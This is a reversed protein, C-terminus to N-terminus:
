KLLRRFFYFGSRKKERLVEKCKNSIALPTPFVKDIFRPHSPLPVNKRGLRHVNCEPIVELIRMSIEATVGGREMEEEVVLVNMTSKASRVITEMDLPLLTQLSIIEVGMGEKRLMVAAKQASFTLAGWVVITIDSGKGFVISSGLSCDFDDSPVYGSSSYLKKDEWFFVLRDSELAKKLLGKAYFPTLPTMIFVNPLHLLNSLFSVGFEPGYWRYNEHALRVVISPGETQGMRYRWTAFRYVDDFSLTIHTDYNYNVLVKYGNLNMGLGMGVLMDEVLPLNNIFREPYQSILSDLVSKRNITIDEGLVVFKSHKVMSEHIAESLAEQFTIERNSM